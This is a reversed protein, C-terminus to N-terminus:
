SVTEPDIDNYAAHTGVFKNLVREFRYAVHVILHCKNGGIDFIVRHDGVFDATTGFTAKIDATSIWSAKSVIRYWAELPAQARQHELWFARLTRKAIIQM